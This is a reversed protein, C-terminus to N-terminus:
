KCIKWEDIILASRRRSCASSAYFNIHPFRIAQYLPHFFGLTGSGDSTHLTADLSPVGPRVCACLSVAVLIGELATCASCTRTAHLVEVVQALSLVGDGM